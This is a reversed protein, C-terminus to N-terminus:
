FSCCLGRYRGLGYKSNRYDAPVLNSRLASNLATTYEFATGNETDSKICM